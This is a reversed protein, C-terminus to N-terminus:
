QGADFLKKRGEMGSMAEVNKRWDTVEEKKEEEKKVTKLNAKFDVSERVKAGLLAGLMADASIKVRKLAPRKMKGKLETIKHSLEAIEKDNKGVKVAIDYREEDIVDIKQHLERCLAQLEQLSLGSLQLPPIRESLVREREREKEEKETALLSSAKKLIKTKLFLKRKLCQSKRIQAPFDWSLSSHTAICCHSLAPEPKIAETAESMAEVNKRWDTVEEKKEEEKKVTKLNAKFDAKSSMKSETLAGLMADASKKVRKLKTRNMTGKLEGIKQTLMQIEKENKAVKVELDYRAEDATDIKRHLEKCLEQLEQVSLGSLKLPPVRENLASERDRKSQEKEAVLMSAAKKLLKGKLLLRRTASIKNKKNGKLCLERQARSRSSFSPSHATHCPWLLFPM